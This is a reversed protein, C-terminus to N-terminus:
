ITAYKVNYLHTKINMIKVVFYNGTYDFEARQRIPYNIKGKLIFLIIHVCYGTSLLAINLLLVLSKYRM